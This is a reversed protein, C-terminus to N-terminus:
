EFIRGEFSIRPEDGDARGFLSADKILSEIEAEETLEGVEQLIEALKRATIYGTNDRDFSHFASALDAEQPLLSKRAMAAVFEPFDMQRNGETDVEKIMDELETETANLSVSKMIVGLEKANISGNYDKDFLTFTEFLEGIQDETM